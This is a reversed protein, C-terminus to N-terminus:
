PRDITRGHVVLKTPRELRWDKSVPAHVDDRRGMYGKTYSGVRADFSIADGVSISSSWKGAKFWLHDTLLRGTDADTVNKLLVTPEDGTWGRRSGFREVVAQIRFRQKNRARLESRHSEAM